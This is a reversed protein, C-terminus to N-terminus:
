GLRRRVVTYGIGIFFIAFPLALVFLAELTRRRAPTMVLPPMEIKFAPIPIRAGTADLWNVCNVVLTAPGNDWLVDKAFDSDGIVVIRTNAMEGDINVVKEASAAISRVGPNRPTAPKGKKHAELAEDVDIELSSDHTLLLNTVAISPRAPVSASASRVGLMPLTNPPPSRLTIPHQNIGIPYILMRTDPNGSLRPDTVIDRRITIGYRDLLRRFEFQESNEQIIPDLMFLARGGRDFFAEIEQREEQRLDARPGVCLLISSKAVLKAGGGQLLNLGAVRFGRQEFLARLGTIAEGRRSDNAALSRESHGQLFYVTTERGQVVQVIANTISEEDVSDIRRSAASASTPNDLRRIFVDGGVVNEGYAAAAFPQTVPNFMKTQVNPSADSYRTLIALLRHKDMGQGPTHFAVIEIPTQLGHLYNMTQPALSHYGKETFDWKVPHNNAIMAVVILCALFLLSYVSLNLFGRANAGAGGFFATAGLSAGFLVLAMGLFDVTGLMALESGGLLQLVTGQVLLLSAGAFLLIGGIIPIITRLRM